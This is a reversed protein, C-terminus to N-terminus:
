DNAVTRSEGASIYKAWEEQVGERLSGSDRAALLHFEQFEDSTLALCLPLIPARALQEFASQDYVGRMRRAAWYVRKVPSCM